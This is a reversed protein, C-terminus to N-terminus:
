RTLSVTTVSAPPLTLTLEGGQATAISETVRMVEGDGMRMAPDGTLHRVRVPGVPRAAATAWTLRLQLPQGRQRHVIWAHTQAADALVVADVLALRPQTPYWGTFQVPQAIGPLGSEVTRLLRDGRVAAYFAMVHGQPLYFPEGGAPARIATINWGTGVFMSQCGIASREAQRVLGHLYSAAGLAAPVAETFPRQGIGRAIDWGNWNWETAAVRYGVATLGDYDHGFAVNRGELDFLGPAGQLGYWAQDDSLQNPKVAVGALKRTWMGMPAYQHVTVHRYRSRVEPHLLTRWRLRNAARNEPNWPDHLGDVILEVAPDVARLADAYAVLAEVIRAIVADDDALGLAVQEAPKPPWFFWTENGVGVLPVRTPEPRGNAARVSGWDPLGPVTDGARRTCYALMGAAHRAAEAIPKRAHLADRLNVILLPQFGLRDRLALYEDLGFRNTYEGGQHGKTVPRAPDARGPARSILDTWDDYDIGTGGPFRVVPAHIAEMRRIVAEPLRGQADAVSEPGSEASFTPRELFMGFLRPDVRAEVEATIAITPVTPVTPEAAPCMALASALVLFRRM